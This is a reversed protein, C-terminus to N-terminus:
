TPHCMQVASALVAGCVHAACVRVCVCVCVCVCATCLCPPHTYWVFFAHQTCSIYINAPSAGHGPPGEDLNCVARPVQMYTCRTIIHMHSSAPSLLRFTPECYIYHMTDRRMADNFFAQISKLEIGADHLSANCHVTADLECYVVHVCLSAICHVRWHANM